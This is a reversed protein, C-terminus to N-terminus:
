VSKTAAWKYFGRNDADSEPTDYTEVGYPQTNDYPETIISSVTGPDDNELAGTAQTQKDTTVDGEDFM